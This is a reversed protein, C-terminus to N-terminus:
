PLPVLSAILGVLRSNISQITTNLLPSGSFVARGTFHRPPSATFFIIGSISIVYVKFALFSAKPKDSLPRPFALAPQSGLCFGQFFFQSARHTHPTPPIKLATSCVFNLPCNYLRHGKIRRCDLGADAFPVHDSSDTTLKDIRRRRKIRQDALM